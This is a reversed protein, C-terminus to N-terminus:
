ELGYDYLTARKINKRYFERDLINSYISLFKMWAEQKNNIHTLYQDVADNLNKICTKTVYKKLTQIAIDRSELIIQIESNNTSVAGLTVLMRFYKFLIQCPITKLKRAM